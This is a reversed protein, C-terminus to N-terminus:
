TFSAMCFVRDEAANLFWISVLASNDEILYVSIM